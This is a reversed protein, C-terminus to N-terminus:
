LTDKDRYELVFAFLFVAGATLIEVAIRTEIILIERGCTEVRIYRELSVM